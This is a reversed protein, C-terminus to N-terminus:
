QTDLSITGKKKRHIDEIEIGTERNEICEKDKLENKNKMPANDHYMITANMIGFKDM